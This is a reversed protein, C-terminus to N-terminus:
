KKECFCKYVIKDDKKKNKYQVEDGLDNKSIDQCNKYNIKIDDNIDNVLKEIKVFDEKLNYKKDEKKLIKTIKGDLNITFKFAGIDINEKEKVKYGVKLTDLDSSNIDYISIITLTKSEVKIDKSTYEDENKRKQLFEKANEKSKDSLLLKDIKGDKIIITDKIEDKRTISSDGSFDKIKTGNEKYEILSELPLQKIGIIDQQFESSEESKSKFIKNQFTFLVAGVLVLGLFLSLIWFRKKKPRNKRKEITITTNSDIGSNETTEQEIPNFNKFSSTKNKSELISVLTLTVNDTGGADLAAHILINATIEIDNENLMMEMSKDNVMGNLGDTCLLFVDGAKVYIPSVNVTAEVSPHIGLAKLIQNKQPHSEAEADSIAGSDVLTQVFSHDKTLRNLKGDSYLYIRSDGVHGIYCAEETILLLVGTTGMGKLEPNNLASAYVQENAFQFASNIAVIPNEHHSKQFFEIISEVAIKSATAGGVHGGMGDCVVYLNGNPTSAEGYNDENAKRVHGVHSLSHSFLEM